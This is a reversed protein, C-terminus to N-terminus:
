IGTPFKLLLTLFDKFTIYKYNFFYLNIIIICIYVGELFIRCKGCNSYSLTSLISSTGFIIYLFYIYIGYLVIYHYM